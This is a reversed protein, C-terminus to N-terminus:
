RSQSAGPTAVFKTLERVAATAEERNKLVDECPTADFAYRRDLGQLVPTKWADCSAVALMVFAPADFPATKTLERVADLQPQGLGKLAPDNEKLLNKKVLETKLLAWALTEKPPLGAKEYHSAYITRLGGTTRQLANVFSRAAADYEAQTNASPAGAAPLAPTTVAPRAANDANGGTKLENAAPKPPNGGIGVLALLPGGVFYLLVALAALAAAALGIASTHPRLRDLFNVGGVGAIRKRPAAGPSVGSLRELESVRWELSPRRILHMILLARDSPLYELFSHFERLKAESDADVPIVVHEGYELARGSIERLSRFASNGGPSLVLGQRPGQYSPKEVVEINVASEGAALLSVIIGGRSRLANQLDARAPAGGRAKTARFDVPQACYVLVDEAGPEAVLHASAREPPGFLTAFDTLM